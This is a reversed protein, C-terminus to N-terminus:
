PIARSRVAGRRTVSRAPPPPPQRPTSRVRNGAGAVGVVPGAQGRCRRRRAVRLADVVRPRLAPHPAAVTFGNRLLFEVGIVPEMLVDRGSPCAYAMVQKEGHAALDRLAAKILLSGLGLRRADDRIHICALMPTDPEISGAAFYLAQPYYRAPAYKIFGLVEDDDVAVRGCEGWERNIEGIRTRVLDGDCLAGCIPELPANSEWFACGPCACPLHDIHQIELPRLRRTM